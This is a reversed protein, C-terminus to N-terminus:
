SFLNDSKVNKLGYQEILNQVEEPTIIFKTYGLGKLYASAQLVKDPVENEVQWGFEPYVILRQIDGVVSSLVIEIDKHELNEVFEEFSIDPSTIMLNRDSLVVKACSMTRREHLKTHVILINDAKLGKEKIIELAFKFNDGTNTSKTEVLIDEGPVGEKLAIDRYIEAEPKSFLNKSVKGLGGVFLIKSAFGKKYLNACKVPIDMNTCGCGIILDCKKVHENLGMYDWIVKLCAVINDKNQFYTDM